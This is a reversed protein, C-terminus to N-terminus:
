ASPIVGVGQYVFGSIWYQADLLDSYITLQDGPQMVADGTWQKASQDTITFQALRTNSGGARNILLFLSGNGISLSNAHFESVRLTHDAPCQRALVFQGHGALGQAIVVSRVIGNAM